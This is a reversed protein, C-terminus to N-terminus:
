RAKFCRVVARTRRFFVIRVLALVSTAGKLKQSYSISCPMISIMIFLVIFRM